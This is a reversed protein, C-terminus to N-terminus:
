LFRSNYINNICTYKIELMENKTMVVRDHESKYQSTIPKNM